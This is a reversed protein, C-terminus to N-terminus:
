WTTINNISSIHIYTATSKIEKYYEKLNTFFLICIGKLYSHNYLPHTLNLSINVKIYIEQCWDFYNLVRFLLIFRYLVGYANTKDVYMIKM